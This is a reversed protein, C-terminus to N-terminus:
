GGTAAGAPVGAADADRACDGATVSGLRAAVLCLAMGEAPAVSAVVSVGDCVDAAAGPAALGARVGALFGTVGWADGAGGAGGGALCGTTEPACFAGVAGASSKVARSCRRLSVWAM